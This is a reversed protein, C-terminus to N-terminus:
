LFFFSLIYKNIHNKKIFCEFSQQQYSDFNLSLINNCFSLNAKINNYELCPFDGIRIFNKFHKIELIKGQMKKMLWWKPFSKIKKKKKESWLIKKKNIESKLSYRREYIM